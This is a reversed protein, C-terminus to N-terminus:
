QRQRAEAAQSSTEYQKSAKTLTSTGKKNKTPAPAGQPPAKPAFTAQAAMIGQPTLTSDLATGMFLSLGQRVRYSPKEKALQMKTIQETMKKNLHDHLEPYMSNFHKVSDPTISGDKIDNIISLPRAALGVVKDYKKNAEKDSKATDFPLKSEIDSPRQTNLYGSVRAKATNLAASHDPLLSSLPDEQKQPQAIGGEAFSQQPQNHFDILEQSSGGGKVYDKIADKDKDSLPATEHSIGPEFLSRVGKDVSKGGKQVKSVYNALNAEEPGGALQSAKSGSGFAGFYPGKASGFLMQAGSHALASAVSAKSDSLPGQLIGASGGDAFYECSAKHLNNSACYHGVQGGNAFGEYCRCNPHPTGHSSCSPNLCPGISM